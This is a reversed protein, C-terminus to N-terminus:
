SKKMRALAQMFRLEVPKGSTNVIKTSPAKYPGMPFAAAVYFLAKEAYIGIQEITDPRCDHETKPSYFLGATPISLARQNPENTSKSVIEALLEGDNQNLVIYDNGGLEVRLYGYESWGSNPYAEGKQGWHHQQSGFRTLKEQMTWEARVPNGSQCGQCFVIMAILTLQKNLNM